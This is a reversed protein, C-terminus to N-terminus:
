RFEANKIEGGETITPEQTLSWATKMAITLTESFSNTLALRRKMDLYIFYSTFLDDASLMIEEDKIRFKVPAGKVKLESLRVDTKHDDGGGSTNENVQAAAIAEELTAAQRIKKYRKPSIGFQKRGRDQGGTFDRIAKVDDDSLPKPSFPMAILELLAGDIVM